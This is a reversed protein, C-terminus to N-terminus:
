DNSMAEAAPASRAPDCSFRIGYEDALKRLDCVVSADLAIGQELAAERRRQELEGPIFVEEVGPTPPCQKMQRILDDVRAKFLDVPLFHSVDWAGMFFGLGQPNDLDNWFSRIRTSDFAGSLASCLLDIIFAIAYGKAGGFPLMAGKLAAQPDTTPMGHEDVAWGEPIHDEGQKAALIIKGQAVVSSAMDLVLPAYTGAPVAISLPNTGLMPKRGGIPVTSAPANSMAIGIMGREAALMTYYAGIGFHNANCVAAFGSGQSTAKEICMRMVRVGLPIGMANRGDVRLATPSANLVEPAVGSCVVGSQIRQAYARLRSVGHSHIGRLDAEVLCDATLSSEEDSLGAKGLIASCYAKLQESHIPM